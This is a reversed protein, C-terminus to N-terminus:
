VSGNLLYPLCGAFIVLLSVGGGSTGGGSSWSGGESPVKSADSRQPKSFLLYARDPTTSSSVAVFRGNATEYGNGLMRQSSGHLRSNTKSSSRPRNSTSIMPPFPSSTM